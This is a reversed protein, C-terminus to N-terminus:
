AAGEGSAPAAPDGDSGELRDTSRGSVSAVLVLYLILGVGLVVVGAVFHVMLSAVAALAVLFLLALIM